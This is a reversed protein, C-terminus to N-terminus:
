KNTVTKCKDVDAYSACVLTKNPTGGTDPGYQVQLSQDTEVIDIGPIPTDSATDAVTVRNKNICLVPGTHGGPVQQGHNPKSNTYVVIYDVVPTPTKINAPANKLSAVIQNVADGTLTCSVFAGTAPPPPTTTITTTRTAPAQAWGAGPLALAAFLGLASAAAVASRSAIPQPFTPRRPTM